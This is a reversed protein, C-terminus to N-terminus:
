YITWYVYDVRDAEVVTGDSYVIKNVGVHVQDIKSRNPLYIYDSYITDGPAIIETTTEYYVMDTGYIENGWADKAYVYLEFAKATKKKAINTVQFRIKLIDGDVYDWQANCDQTIVLAFEPDSFHEAPDGYIKSLPDFGKIDTMETPSPTPVITPRATPLPTPTPKPTPTVGKKGKNYEGLSITKKEDIGAFLKEAESIGVAFNLNQVIGEGDDYSASTVGVVEGQDNFLPGGSSGSSIPATFQIYSIGDDSFVASVNGMSVTNILGKPSGVAVIPEGRLTQSEAGLPLPALNTPSFFGLLAIDTQANAAFVRDVIYSHGEDSYAIILDAGEIVHHNTVLTRSNFAVFGSGTAILEDSDDYVELLLVSKVAENIAAVDRTFETEALAALPLLAIVLLLTAIRRM